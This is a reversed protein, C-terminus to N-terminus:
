RRVALVVLAATEGLVGAAGLVDGTFGGLRRLALGAVAAVVAALVVISVPALWRHALLGGGVTTLGIAGVLGLGAVVAVPPGGPDLFARVLGTDRAYPLTRAVVAMATRSGCWVGALLLPSAALSGLAAVRMLLVVVVAVVGFAGVAPDSMARLRREHDMPALLGDASDALGDLHLLGTVAADAAVVVAAAVVAPWWRAAGWWLGGLGLGILAGALPFWALTSGSPSSAGGVVTLFGLARRM